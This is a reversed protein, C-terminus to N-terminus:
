VGLLNVSITASASPAKLFTLATSSTTIALIAESAVLTRMPIWDSGGNFKVWGNVPSRVMVFKSVPVASFNIQASTSAYGTMKVDKMDRKTITTSDTGAFSDLQARDSFTTDSGSILNIRYRFAFSM